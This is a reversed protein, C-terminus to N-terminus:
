VDIFKGRAGGWWLRRAGGRRCGSRKLILFKRKEEKKEQCVGDSESKGQEMGNEEHDEEKKKPQSKWDGYLFDVKKVSTTKQYVRNGNGGPGKRKKRANIKPTRQKETRNSKIGKAKKRSVHKQL